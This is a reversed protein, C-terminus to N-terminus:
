SHSHICIGFTALLSLGFRHYFFASTATQHTDKHKSYRTLFGSVLSIQRKTLSREPSYRSITSVGFILEFDVAHSRFCKPHPGAILSIAPRLRLHKCGDMAAGTDRHPARKSRSGSDLISMVGGACAVARKSAIVSLALGHHESQRM